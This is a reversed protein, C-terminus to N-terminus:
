AEGNNSDMPRDAERWERGIREAEDFDPSDAYIGLFSRWGTKKDSTNNSHAVLQKEVLQLKEELRTVRDDLTEAAM